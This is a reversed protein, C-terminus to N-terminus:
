LDVQRQRRLALILPMHWWVWSIQKRLLSLARSNSTFFLFNSAEQSFMFKKGRLGGGGMQFVNKLYLGGLVVEFHVPYM